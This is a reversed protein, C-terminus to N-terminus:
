VNYETYAPRFSSLVQQSTRTNHVIPLKVPPPKKYFRVGDVDPLRAGGFKPYIRTVDRLVPPKPTPHLKGVLLDGAFMYPNQKKTGPATDPSLAYDIKNREGPGRGITPLPWFSHTGPETSSPRSNKVVPLERTKKRSFYRVGPVRPVETGNSFKPFIETEGPVNSIVGRSEVMGVPRNGVFM